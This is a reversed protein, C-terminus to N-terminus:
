YNLVNGEPHIYLIVTLLSESVNTYWTGLLMVWLLWFTFVVWTNVSPHTSLCFTTYACSRINDLRLFSARVCAVLLIFRSSMISLSIIRDVFPCFLYSEVSTLTRSYAFEYLPLSCFNGSAPSTPFTPTLTQHAYLKLKSHHFHEPSPHPHDNCLLTFTSLAM